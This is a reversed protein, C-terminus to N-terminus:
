GVVDRFRGAAVEIAADSCDFGMNLFPHIADDYHVHEVTCGADRLADAYLVGETRFVDFEVTLVEAPPLGSLDVAKLPLAYPNQRDIPSALYHNWYWPATLSEGPAERHSERTFDDDIMPYVLWQYAIDPTGLDRALLSVTAALNGGASGGAVGIADSRGDIAEAHEAAWATAAYCDLLAAPFPHEPARRYDVSVVICDGSNALHRCISDAIDPSGLVFGGGHFWLMVPLPGDGRPTYIRVPISAAADVAGATGPVETDYVSEVPEPDDPPGFREAVVKRAGSVSLSHIPPTSTEDGQEVVPLMESNLDSVDWAADEWVM